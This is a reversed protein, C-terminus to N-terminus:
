SKMRANYNRGYGNYVETMIGEEVLYMMVEKHLSIFGTEYVGDRQTLNQEVMEKLLRILYRELPTRVILETKSESDM